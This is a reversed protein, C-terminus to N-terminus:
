FAVAVTTEHNAYLTIPFYEMSYLRHLLHHLRCHRLQVEKFFSLFLSVVECCKLGCEMEEGYLSEFFHLAGHLLEFVYRQICSYIQLCVSVNLVPCSQQWSHPHSTCILFIFPSSFICLVFCLVCYVPEEASIAENM